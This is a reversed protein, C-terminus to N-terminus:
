QNYKLNNKIIDRLINNEAPYKRMKLHFITSNKAFFDNFRTLM